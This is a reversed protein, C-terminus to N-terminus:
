FASSVPYEEAPGLYVPGRRPLEVLGTGNPRIRWVTYASRGTGLRHFLIWASDTSWAPKSNVVLDGVVRRQDTGDPEMSFISWTLGLRLWAITSGDPSFYPDHDRATDVTLRREGTGDVNISYVEYANPQCVKSPCGVFLVSRGDPAWSPDLNQGARDTVRRAAGGDDDTIWIQPNGSTGAFVVIEDGGPSWEPHGLTAWGYAGDPIIERSDSGDANMVWISTKTYDRDHTGRPSRVFMIRTRDPSIKPWWSDYRSDDTLQRRDDGDFTMSFLEYGAASKADYVVLDDPLVPAASVPTPVFSLAALWAVLALSRRIAM